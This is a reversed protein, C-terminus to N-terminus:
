QRRVEPLHGLGQCRECRQYCPSEPVDYGKFACENCLEVDTDLEICPCIPPDDLYPNVEISTEVTVVAVDEPHSLWELSKVSDAFGHEAKHTACVVVNITQSDDDENTLSLVCGCKVTQTETVAM